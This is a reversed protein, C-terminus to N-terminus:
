IHILSLNFVAGVGTMVGCGLLSAVEFSIDDPIKVAQNQRVVTYEAFAASNAFAMTPEGKYSFPKNNMIRGTQNLCLTPFGTDCKACAGCYEMTIVVVHDGPAVMTVSEGVAEVIGAGEHGMVTPTPFPITGNVVSVDSHCVGASVIRVLVEDSAPERVELQDTVEMAGTWVIGKM